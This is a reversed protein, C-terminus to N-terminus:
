LRRISSASACARGADLFFAPSSSSSLQPEPSYKGRPLYEAPSGAALTDGILGYFGPKIPAWADKAARLAALRKAVMRERISMRSSKARALSATKEKSNKRGLAGPSM